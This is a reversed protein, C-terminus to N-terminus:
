PVNAIGRTSFLRHRYGGYGQKVVSFTGIGGDQTINAKIVGYSHGVAFISTGTVDLGIFQTQSSNLFSPDRAAERASLDISFPSGPIQSFVGTQFDVAYAMITENDALIYVYQYDSSVLMIEYAPSLLTTVRNQVVLSGDASVRFRSISNNASDRLYAYDGAPDLLVDVFQETSLKSVNSQFSLSGNPEINYIEIEHVGTTIVSGVYIRNNSPHVALKFVIRGGTSISSIFTLSGDQEVRYRHISGGATHSVGAYFYEGSADFVYQNLESFGSTIDGHYVDVEVPDFPVGTVPDLEYRLSRPVLRDLAYIYRQNPNLAFVEIDILESEETFIGNDAYSFAQTNSQFAPRSDRIANHAYLYQKNDINILHETNNTTGAINTVALTLTCICDNMAFTDLDFSFDPITASVGQSAGNYFLEVSSVGVLDSVTGSVTVLGSSYVNNSPSFQTVTPGSEDIAVTPISDFLAHSSDNLARASPLLQTATLGTQNNINNAMRIIGLAIDHRYTNATINLGGFTLQGTSGIGNLLGDFLADEYAVMSFNISNTFSHPSPDFVTSLDLSWQSLGGAYFGYLLSNTLAGANNIDTIDRPVTSLIDLGLITSVDYNASFIANDVSSGNAIRYQAIGTAINTWTTVNVKVTNGPVLHAVARLIHNQTAQLPINIASAEEIYRGSTVEILIPTAPSLISLEYRGLADTVTAALEAGKVGGAFSYVRLDGNFVLNQFVEGDVTSPPTNFVDINRTFTDAGDFINTAVIQLDYPGDVIVTTDISASYNNGSNTFNVPSGALTVTVDKIGYPDTISFDTVLTGVTYGTTDTNFTITPLSDFSQTPLGGFVSDSAFNLAEVTAKVDGGDLGSLNYASNVATFMASATQYRYTDVDVVVSGLSISGQSGTGDLLGDALLDDYATVSLSLSHYLSHADVANAEGIELALQSVAAIAIGYRHGDTPFSTRNAADTINLAATSVVDFGLLTAFRQNAQTISNAATEGQGSLYNALAYALHTYYTLSLQATQNLQFNHVACLEYGNANVGVDSAWERYSGNSSCILIPTNLIRLDFTYTGAGNTNSTALQAGKSDTASPDYEFVTVQSFLLSSVGSLQTATSNIVVIEREINQQFGYVNEVVISLTYRGDPLLTTDLSAAAGDRNANETVTAPLTGITTSVNTVGYPDSYSFNLNALGEFLTSTDTNLTVTPQQYFPISVAGGFMLDVSSNLAQAMDKIASGRLGTRNYDAQVAQFMAMALEHRYLDVNVPVTGMTLAGNAGMGDLLGDTSLDDFALESFAITNYLAHVDVNNTESINVTLQSLGGLALGYLHRDTVFSTGSAVDTIDVPRTTTTDFGLLNGTRQNAASIASETEDGNDINYTALAYALHSFFSVNLSLNEGSTYLSLACLEKGTAPVERNSAAEFYTGNTACVLIPQDRTQLDLAYSGNGDATTSALEDGRAGDYAYATVDADVISSNGSVQSVPRPKATVSTTTEKECGASFFCVLLVLFIVRDKRWM